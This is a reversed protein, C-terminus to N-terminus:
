VKPAEEKKEEPKPASADVPKSEDKKEEPTAAGPAPTAAPAAPAPTAAPATAETKSAAPTAPKADEKPKDNKCAGLGVILAAALLEKKM